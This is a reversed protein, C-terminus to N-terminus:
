FANLREDVDIATGLLLYTSLVGVRELLLSEPLFDVGKLNRVPELFDELAARNNM